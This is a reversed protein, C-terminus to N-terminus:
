IDLDNGEEFSALTDKAEQMFDRKGAALQKEIYAQVKDDLWTKDKFYAAVAEDKQCMDEIKVLKTRTKFIALLAAKANKHALDRVPDDSRYTGANRRAKEPMEKGSAMEAYALRWAALKGSDDDKFQGALDDNIFRQAAKRLHAEIWTPHMLSFDVEVLTGGIKTTFVVNPTQLTHM